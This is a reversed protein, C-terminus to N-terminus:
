ARTVSQRRACSVLVIRADYQCLKRPPYESWANSWIFTLKAQPLTTSKREKEL